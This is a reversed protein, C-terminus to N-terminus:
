LTKKKAVTLKADKDGNKAVLAKATMTHFTIMNENSAVSMAVNAESQAEMMAHIIAIVDPPSATRGGMVLVSGTTPRPAGM